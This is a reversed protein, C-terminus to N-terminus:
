GLWLSSTHSLFQTTAACSMWPGPRPPSEPLPPSKRRTFSATPRRPRREFRRWIPSSANEDELRADEGPELRARELEQTQFRLLNITRLRDQENQNLADRERELDRRRHFLGLVEELLAEVGAFDDLLDLQAEREFLAAHEGQGHVEVLARALAKVAAVTVPQDNALLRSKGGSQIERRLIIEDDDAGVLGYEELWANWPARRKGRGTAQHVRFVATVTARDQGTRIVDPSARGGLALGLADVLISKGSGTEGSLLNLGPRFELALKEVVAYNQIHIERLM